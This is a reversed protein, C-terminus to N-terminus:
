GDTLEVYQPFNHELLAYGAELVYFTHLVEKYTEDDKARCAVVGNGGDIYVTPTGHLKGELEMTKIVQGATYGLISASACVIDRGVEAQGAHGEVWLSAEREDGNFTFTVKIM